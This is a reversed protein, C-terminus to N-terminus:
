NTPLTLHTYSVPYLSDAPEGLRILREGGLVDVWRGATEVERISESSLEGFLPTLAERLQALDDRAKSDQGTM